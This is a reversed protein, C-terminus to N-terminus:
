KKIENSSYLNLVGGYQCEKNFKECWKCFDNEKWLLKWFIESFRKIYWDYDDQLIYDSNIKINIPACSMLSKWDPNIVPFFVDSNEFSPAWYVKNIICTNILFDYAKNSFICHPLPWSSIVNKWMRETIYKYGEYIFDWYSEDIDNNFVINFSVAFDFKFSEL